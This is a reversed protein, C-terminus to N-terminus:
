HEFLREYIKAPLGFFNALIYEKEEPNYKFGGNEQGQALALKEYPDENDDESEEVKKAPQKEVSNLGKDVM